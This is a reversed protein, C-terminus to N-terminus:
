LGSAKKSISNVKVPQLQENGVFVACKVTIGHTIEARVEQGSVLQGILVVPNSILATKEAMLVDNIFLQETFRATVKIENEDFKYAWVERDPIDIYMTFLFITAGVIKEIVSTVFRKM